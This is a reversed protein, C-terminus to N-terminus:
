LWRHERNLWEIRESLMKDGDFLFYGRFPQGNLAQLLWRQDDEWMKHFPIKDLDFWLPIAEASETPTGVFESAIFVTCFLSLGDLFQFHLEGRKHPDTPTIGLEEQAERVVCTEPTEGSELKGGVGNIKGAGLGRKKHIMLIKSTQRVFCLTARTNPQWGVWDFSSSISSDM